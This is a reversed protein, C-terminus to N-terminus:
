VRGHGVSPFVPAGIGHEVDNSTAGTPGGAGIFGGDGGVGLGGSPAVFFNRLLGRWSFLPSCAANRGPLWFEASCRLAGRFSGFNRCPSSQAPSVQPMRSM